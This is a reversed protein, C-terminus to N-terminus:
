GAAPDAPPAAAGAPLDEAAAPGGEERRIM